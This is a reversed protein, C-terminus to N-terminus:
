GLFIWVKVWKTGCGLNRVTKGMRADICYGREDGGM